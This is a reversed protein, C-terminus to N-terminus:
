EQLLVPYVHGRLSRWSLWALYALGVYALFFAMQEYSYLYAFESLGTWTIQVALIAACGIVVWGFLPVLWVTALAFMLLILPLLLDLEFPYSSLTFLPAAALIVLATRLLAKGLPKAGKRAVGSSPIVRANVFSLVQDCMESPCILMGVSRWSNRLVIMRQRADYAVSSVQDWRIFENERSAALVGAGATQPSGGLVGAAMALRNGAKARKDVSEWRAGADDVTFRVRMRNGFLIVAILFLFMGLGAAALLSILLMTPIADFEGTTASIFSLMLAMFLGSGGAVVALQKLVLSNTVLPVDTEWTLADGQGASASWDEGQGDCCRECVGSEEQLPVSRQDGVSTGNKM